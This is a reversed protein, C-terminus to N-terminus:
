RFASGGTFLRYKVDRSQPQCGDCLVQIRFFLEDPFPNNLQWGCEFYDRIEEDPKIEPYSTPAFSVTHGGPVDVFDPQDIKIRVNRASLKGGNKFVFDVAATKQINYIKAGIRSAERQADAITLCVRQPHFPELLPRTNMDGNGDYLLLRSHLDYTGVFVGASVTPTLLPDAYGWARTDVGTAPVRQWTFPVIKVFHVDASNLAAWRENQINNNRVTTYFSVLAVALSIATGAITIRDKWTLPTKPDERPKTM